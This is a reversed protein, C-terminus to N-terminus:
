ERIIELTICHIGGDWFYRHRFPVVIPQIKHRRLFDFVQDNHNNVVVHKDDLMLCNVDFVTEEVYGVWNNLWEEVFFTFDDNSEEGPLWWKGQNQHKVKLFGTVAHWSQNPLYLVDWSPFLDAYHTASQLTLMVGPKMLHYEGDNHGQTPLFHWHIDPYKKQLLHQSRPSLRNDCGVYAKQDVIYICGGSWEAEFSHWSDVLDSRHRHAIETMLQQLAPHDNSTMVLDKNVVAWADRPNMPPKPILTNTVYNEPAKANNHWQGDVKKLSSEIRQDENIYNEIRDGPDLYPRHVIIKHSQLLSQFKQFDEETEDAIRSLCSKIKSNKINSYFEASYSKGLVVERLSSWKNKVSVPM